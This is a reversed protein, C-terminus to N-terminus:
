KRERLVKVEKANGISKILHLTARRQVGVAVVAVALATNVPNVVLIMSGFVYTTGLLLNSARGAPKRGQEGESELSSELIHWLVRSMTGNDHYSEPM